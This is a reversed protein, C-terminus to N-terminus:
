SSNTEKLRYYIVVLFASLLWLYPIALYNAFAGNNLILASTNVEYVGNVMGALMCGIIGISLGDLNRRPYLRFIRYCVYAFVVAAGIIAIGGLLGADFYLQLYTNHPNFAYGQYNVLYLEYWTGPGTGTVIHNSLLNISNQWIHIRETISSLPFMKAVWTQALPSATDSSSIVAWSFFGITPLTLALTWLKWCSIVFVIGIIASLWGGGSGNFFLLILFICLIGIAWMRLRSSRQFIALSLLLPSAIGLAGGPTNYSPIFAGIQPVIKPLNYIWENFFYHRNDGQFFTYMTLGLILLCLIGGLTIWYSSKAESNSVIGYFFLISALYTHLGPWSVSKDYSFLFGIIIGVIFILIPVDFPTRKLLRGTRWFRLAWPILAICWSIWLPPAGVLFTLYIGISFLSQAALIFDVLKLGIRKV